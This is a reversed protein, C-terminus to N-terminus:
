RDWGSRPHAGKREGSDRPSSSRSENLAELILGLVGDMGDIVGDNSFRMIRFGHAELFATREADRRLEDDTSHTAGDVEVILKCERCLFDAIFPGASAQRV